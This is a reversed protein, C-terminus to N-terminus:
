QKGRLPLDVEGDYIPARVKGRQSWPTVKFQAIKAEVRSVDVEGFARSCASLIVRRAREGEESTGASEQIRAGSCSTIKARKFADKADPNCDAVQSEYRFQLEDGVSRLNRLLKGHGSVRMSDHSTQVLAVPDIWPSWGGERLWCRGWLRSFGTPPNPSFLHWDQQFWPEMYSKVGRGFSEKLPNDPLLYLATFVVHILALLSPIVAFFAATSTLM